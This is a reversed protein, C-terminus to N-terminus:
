MYKIRMLIMKEKDASHKLLYEIVDKVLINLIVANSSCNGDFRDSLSSAYTFFKWSPQLVTADSLQASTEPFTVSSM